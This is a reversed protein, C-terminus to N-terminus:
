LARVSAATKSMLHFFMIVFVVGCCGVLIWVYAM